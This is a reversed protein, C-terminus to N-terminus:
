LSPALPQCRLGGEPFDVLGALELSCHDPQEGPALWLRLLESHLAEGGPPVLGVDSRVLLADDLYDVLLLPAILYGVEWQIRTDGGEVRERERREEHDLRVLENATIRRASEVETSSCWRAFSIGRSIGM